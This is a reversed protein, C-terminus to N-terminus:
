TGGAATKRLTEADLLQPLLPHPRLESEKAVQQVNAHMAAM